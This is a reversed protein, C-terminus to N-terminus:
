VVGYSELLEHFRPDKRVSELDRDEQMYEFEDYGLEIAKQLAELAPDILNLLSYSCALNYHVIPDWHRLRSLRLDVELGAAYDGKSTLNNGMVRLVEFYDHDRELIGGFFDIEFELQSQSNFRRLVHAPLIPQTDGAPSIDEYGDM